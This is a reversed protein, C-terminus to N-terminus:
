QGVKRIQMLRRKIAAELADPKTEMVGCIFGLREAPIHEILMRALREAETQDRMLQLMEARVEPSPARDLHACMEAFWERYEPDADLDKAPTTTRKALADAAGRIGLDAVTAAELGSRALQMYRRATRGSIGAQETLWRDWQGHQLAGKAEILARGAAMAHEAMSLANARVAQHATRVEGALVTLRNSMVPTTRPARSM